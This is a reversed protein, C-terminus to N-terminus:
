WSNKTTVSKAISSRAVSTNEYIITRYALLRM